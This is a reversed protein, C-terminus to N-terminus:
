HDGNREEGLDPRLRSKSRALLPAARAGRAALTKATARARKADPYLGFVTGGSGSVMSLLAGTARIAALREGVEPYRAVVTAQLDNRCADLPLAGGAVVWHYLGVSEAEAESAVTLTRYIEATPVPNPCPLVVVWWRPLDAVPYVEEGRGVGWAAGGLLFFPVDAGLAAALPQLDAFTDPLQWLAALGVLAAAADSSGGGMGGAVPIQKRLTIRAGGARPAHRQLARAAKLVLNDASVPVANTPEVRLALCGRPALTLELEDWIGVAAFLTRLEHYGDARRGLVELHLNVKAPCRVRLAIPLGPV